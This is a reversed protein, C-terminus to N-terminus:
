TSIENAISSSKNFFLDYDSALQAPSYVLCIDIEEDIIRYFPYHHVPYMFNTETRKQNFKEVLFLYVHPFSSRQNHFLEYDFGSDMWGGKGDWSFQIKFTM